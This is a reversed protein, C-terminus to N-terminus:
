DPTGDLMDLKNKIIARPALSVPQVYNNILDEELIYVEDNNIITNGLRSYLVDFTENYSSDVIYEGDQFHIRYVGSVKSVVYWWSTDNTLQTVAFSGNISDAALIAQSKNLYPSFDLGCFSM